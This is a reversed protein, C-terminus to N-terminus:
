FGELDASLSPNIIKLYGDAVQKHFCNTKATPSLLSKMDAKNDHQCRHPVAQHPDIHAWLRQSDPKPYFFFFFMMGCYNLINEGAGDAPLM